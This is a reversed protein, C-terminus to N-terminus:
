IRRYLKLKEMVRQTIEEVAGSTDVALHSEPSVETVPEFQEKQRQYIEWRADSVSSEERLRQELRRKVEKEELRCELVIFEAGMEEALKRAKLREERKRFSADLLVSRRQALINRAEALMQEYTRRTFEESYIGNEFQEFRHEAPPIGALRKRVVDSSIVELGMKQALNRALTTKGTGVLGVTILLVPALSGLVYSHALAFYRQAASLVKSKEEASIHPDDLKFSEVKGRVYARYCKYFDLLELLEGDGSREVYVQVFSQSLHPCGYFDLDMALFAVESAVDSYRFRDNFEICDYICIGDTFCIHASHLDGHCDRIRGQEVRRQFLSANRSVFGDTYDRIDRYQEQRISIGLYKQTQAFNEETNILVINLGGYGSIVESTRAEQHFKAVKEAVRGVMESSVQKKRLLVDMMRESPLQRMKVAYEVPEGEGGLFFKGGRQVIPVVELYIEPCLRRNLELERQCFFRRKELTTYDLYGLDVPKKVKYAYDGTLFIFSMQTQMLEIKTPGHPYIEPELLAQILPPLVPMSEGGLAARGPAIPIKEGSSLFEV